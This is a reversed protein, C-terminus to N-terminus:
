RRKRVNNPQSANMWEQLWEPYTVEPFGEPLFEEDGYELARDILHVVVYSSGYITRDSKTFLYQRTMLNSHTGGVVNATHGAADTVRINRAINEVHLRRFRNLTTDIAATEYVGTSDAGGIYVSGDQIHYRVFNEIVDRIVQQRATAEETLKDLEAQRADVQAQRAEYEAETIAGDKLEQEYNRLENQLYNSYEALETKLDTWEEFTEWTPLRKAAVLAEIASNQPVYISYHYNGMMSFAYDITVQKGSNFTQGVFSCAPAMLRAFQTFEPHAITDHVEAYPSVSTTYPITDVVYSVGNGSATQDFTLEETVPIWWGKSAHYSGAIGTVKGGEFRVKLPSGGKTLYIEQGEHFTRAHKGGHVVIVNELIDELRNSVLALNTTTERNPQRNTAARNDTMLWQGSLSDLEPVYAEAYVPFFTQSPNLRYRYAIPNAKEDPTLSFPDVYAVQGAQLNFAADRSLIFSYTSAMSNVYAQYEFLTWFAGNDKGKYDSNAVAEHMVGLDQDSRLIAPFFISQHDPAVFVKGLQYVVGNCAMFCSDVDAPVIGMEESATNKVSAFKSPVSAVFSSQLCNNLFPLVVNDPVNRWDYGYKLGIAAGEGEPSLYHRMWDDTPVLMAAGDNQYTDGSNTNLTYRNWGPDLALTGSPTMTTGNELYQTLANDSKGSNFYRKAFLSDTQGDITTLGIYDPYSYRDLLESFISFQPKSHVIEAMNPLQEPVGELIHLYGNQCTVDQEVVRQGNIYSTSAVDSAAGNTLKKLDESTLDNKSMFDPLFHVMPTAGVYFSQTSGEGRYVDGKYIKVSARERVSSWYDVQLGHADVRAPNVVPFDEAYMVPISDNIDVRSARRFCAGETPPDGATNSLLEILYANNVMASKLLNKKESKPLQSVSTLGRKKLFVSWADDNAVFLTMSGTRRLMEPYNTDSLDPDNILALTQQFNGRRELEEYISSGLWSPTGTLLDDQCSSFGLTGGALLFAACAHSAGRALRRKLISNNM